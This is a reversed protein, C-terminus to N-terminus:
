HRGAVLWGRRKEFLNKRMYKWYLARAHPNFADYVKVTRSNPYTGFDFLMKKREMEQYIESTGGFSPWVSILFKAHLGHISDIMAEPHPYKPNEFATSNWNDDDGWYQWDQVVADLPVQLSRYKKVVELVQQQSQYRERSQIYGFSWLPFMPVTGTLTRYGKIIQKADSGAIVYYDICDGVESRLSMQNASDRYVTASTNDWYIGYGRTSQLFPIAIDMNRQRLLITQGRQNMKGTQHQGLGYIAESGSLHFGQQVMFGGSGEEKFPKQNVAERLLLDHRGNFFCLTGDAKNLEVRLDRSEIFLRNNRDGTMTKVPSYAAKLVVLSNKEPATGGPYKFVGVTNSNIFRIETTLNHLRYKLVPTDAPVQGFVAYVQLMSWLFVLICKM